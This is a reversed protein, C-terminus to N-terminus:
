EEPVIAPLKRLFPPAQTTQSPTIPSASNPNTAPLSTPSFNMSSSEYPPLDNPDAAEFDDDGTGGTNYSPLHHLTPPAERIVASYRPLTAMAPAPKRRVPLPAEVQEREMSSFTPRPPLPPREEEAENDSNSEMLAISGHSQNGNFKAQGSPVELPDEWEDINEPPSLMEEFKARDMHFTPGLTDKWARIMHELINQVISMMEIDEKPDIGRLLTPAFCIALNRSDMQNADQYEVITSLLPLLHKLMIQRSIKSLPSWDNSDVLMGVLVSTAIDSVKSVIVRKLVSYSSQPFIPEQLDKYWQKILSTATHLDYGDTRTLDEVQVNGHGDRRHVSSMMSDGEKWVIFKQERVYAEKLVDLTQSRASLRFIGETKLMPELLVFKTAERLVRPLRAIGSAGAPLPQAAGFARKGHTYPVDIRPCFRRDSTLVSPPLQLDQIPILLALQGM